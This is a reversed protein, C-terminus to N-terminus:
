KEVFLLLFLVKSDKRKGRSVRGKKVFCFLNAEKKKAKSWEGKEELM